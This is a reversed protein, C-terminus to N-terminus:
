HLLEQLTAVIASIDYPKALHENMGADLSNQRDEDFANATVAVIPITAKQRDDLSRIRRAAEYGDMVPMQIDMLIADYYGAPMTEIREVAKAGDEVIDVVLGRDSLIAEAIMQNMENDEALLVREGCFPVAQEDAEADDAMQGSTASPASEDVCTGVKCPILVTFESGEGEKSVVSITGGMLEVARHTIAMGLGTGQIGSVTSTRERTFAEFLSEQFGESMGIGNDRVRFEINVVDDADSPQEAVLLWITGGPQTFKVANTLINLLVQNLRLKDVVIDNHALGQAEVCFDISKEAMDSSVITQLEELVSPLHVNTEELVVAGSEIMSMDLVNNILSLLHRSSVAIKDLYDRVQEEDDAQDMALNTFGVIANMPTRMDHSMNNLFDTKARNAREAELLAESLAQRNQALEANKEELVQRAEEKEEIDRQSRRIALLLIIVVLVAIVLLVPGFVTMNDLLMDVFGYSYLGDTYRYSNNQAYDDGLMNVGRNLLKLLGENGIEVGFCRTDYYTTQRLSLGKFERNRLIDNARLSNLTACGVDGSLVALLCAETSPYFTIKADPYNTKVFYYQMRNNENVAFHRTTEDTFEGAYVLEAPTSSVANSQYIGSEENYYLNGGVPFGVDISGSCIDAIMDDYSSYGHYTLTVDRWGLADLMAPMMDKIVGTVNGQADTDCYPLYHELYGVRLSQHADMWEREAQSFARATVSTSYYKASLSNIYNPEETALAAQATNLEKLLDPRKANVCLYYDSTGFVMLVESHERGHTGDSEAALIDVEHSDFADFLQTHDSFSVVTATVKHDDLYKNLVGVMASDLVGIKCGNLTKPDTTINEDSDHKVLYYSEHGMTAEPYGMLSAREERWALGALLDIKGDLLMQYLDAFGGYVYEYKWGTYESLKRYYEYAYGTKAVGEQAGEEFVENEYYGVRVLEADDTNASAPAPAASTTDAQSDAAPAAAVTPADAAPAAHAVVPLIVIVALLACVLVALWRLPMGYRRNPSRRM